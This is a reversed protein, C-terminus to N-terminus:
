WVRTCWTHCCGIVSVRM